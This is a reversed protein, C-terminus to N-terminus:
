VIEEAFLPTGETREVLERRLGEVSRHNGLLSQLLIEAAGAALPLLRVQSFYSKGGWGHRYEPRYTVLLMLRLAGITDVLADLVAQTEGDIWHLDEFLLVVPNNKSERALVAKVADLTRRRRQPPTLALWDQDTVSLDLLSSLAPLAPKLEPYIDEIKAQVK